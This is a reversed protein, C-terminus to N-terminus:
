NGRPLKTCRKTSSLPGEKEELPCRDKKKGKGRPNKQPTKKIKKGNQIDWWVGEWCPKQHAVTSKKKAIM